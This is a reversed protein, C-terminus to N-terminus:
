SPGLDAMLVLSAFYKSATAVSDSTVTPAAPQRRLELLGTFSANTVLLVLEKQCSAAAPTWLYSCSPLTWTSMLSGGFPVKSSCVCIRCFRTLWPYSAMATLAM